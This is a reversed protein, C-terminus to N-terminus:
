RARYFGSTTRRAAPTSCLWRHEQCYTKDNPAIPECCFLFGPQELEGIPYRCDDARLAIVADAISAPIDVLRPATNAIQTGGLVHRHIRSRREATEAVRRAQAKAAFEQARTAGRAAAAAKTRARQSRASGPQPGPGTIRAALVVGAERLRMVKGSIASRSVGFHRGIAGGSVGENWMKILLLTNAENLQGSYPQHPPLTITANEKEM